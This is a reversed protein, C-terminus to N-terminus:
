SNECEGLVKHLCNPPTQNLESSYHVHTEQLLVVDCKATLNSGSRNAINKCKPSQLISLGRKLKRKVCNVLQLHPTEVVFYFLM